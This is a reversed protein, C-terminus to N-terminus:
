NQRSVRCAAFTFQQSHADASRLGQRPYRTGVVVPALERGDALAQLLGRGQRFLVVQHSRVFHAVEALAAVRQRNGVQDFNLDLGVLPEELLLDLGGLALVLAELGQEALDERDLAVVPVEAELVDAVVEGLGAVGGVLAAGQAQGVAHREADLDAEDALVLVLHHFVGDVEALDRDHDAAALEDDVAGLADDHVLEVARRADVEEDFHLFAVARQVAAADDGLAARPDLARDGLLVRQGDADVLRLLIGAVVKRRASSLFYLVVSAIM